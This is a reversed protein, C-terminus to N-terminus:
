RLSPLLALKNGIDWIEKFGYLSTEKIVREGRVYAIRGNPSSDYVEKFLQMGQPWPAIGNTNYSTALPLEVSEEIDGDNNLFAIEGIYLGVDLTHPKVFLDGDVFYFSIKVGLEFFLLYRQKNVEAYFSLDNDRIKCNYKTIFQTVDRKDFSYRVPEYSPLIEKNFWGCEEVALKYHLSINSNKFSFDRRSSDQKTFVRIGMRSGTLLYDIVQTAETGNVPYLRNYSSDAYVEFLGHDQVALVHKGEPHLTIYRENVEVFYSEASTIVFQLTDSLDAIIRCKLNGENGEQILNGGLGSFLTDSKQAYQLIFAGFFFLFFLLRKM